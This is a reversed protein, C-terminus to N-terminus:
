IQSKATSPFSTMEGGGFHRYTDCISGRAEGLTFVIRM